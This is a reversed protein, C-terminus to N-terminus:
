HGFLWRKGFSPLTLMKIYSLKIIEEIKLFLFFIM